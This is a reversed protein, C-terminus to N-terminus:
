FPINITELICSEDDIITCNMFHDMSNLEIFDYRAWALRDAAVRRAYDDSGPFMDLQRRHYGRDFPGRKNNLKTYEWLAHNLAFPAPCLPRQWSDRLTANRHPSM